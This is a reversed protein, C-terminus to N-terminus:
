SEAHCSHPFVPLFISAIDLHFYDRMRQDEVSSIGLEDQGVVDGLTFASLPSQLLSLFLQALRLFKLTDPLQGASDGM